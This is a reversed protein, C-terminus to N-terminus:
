FVEFEIFTTTEEITLDEPLQCVFDRQTGGNWKLAYIFLIVM